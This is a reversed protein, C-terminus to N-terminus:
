LKNRFETPTMTTYKKFLRSFYHADSIGVSEAVEYTKLTMDKLREKAEAIRKENLYDVFNKGLEKKFMRSLYYPSVFAQKALDELTVQLTYNENIYDIALQLTSHISNQNYSDIKETISTAVNELIEHLEYIDSCTEVMQYFSYLNKPIADEEQELSKISVRISNINYILNSYFTKIEEVKIAPGQEKIMDGLRSIADKVKVVAGAKIDKIIEEDLGEIALVEAPLYFGELDDHIIISDKGLYFQYDLCKECEKMKSGLDKVGHGQTSIAVTVYFDFCTKMLAHINEIKKYLDEKNMLDHSQVVMAVQSENISIKELNYEEGLIEDVTNMVGFQYLYRQEPTYTEDNEELSFLLLVFDNIELNYLEKLNEDETEAGKRRLIYDSLLKEKLLPLSKEFREKMLELEGAYETQYKLEVVAKKLVASIKEIKSPKLIYDFAGIRLAEQLYSFDRYGTLIVFKTHPVSEKAADIMELGDMEPMNIDAIVIDPRLEKIKELGELGDMAEGVVECGFHKWDIIHILGKRINPEDDVILVKYM